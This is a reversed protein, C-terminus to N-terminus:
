RLITQRPHGIPQPHTVQTRVAAAPAPEVGTAVVAKAPREGAPHWGSAPLVKPPAVGAAALRSEPIAMGRPEGGRRKPGRLAVDAGAAFRPFGHGRIKQVAASEQSGGAAHARVPAAGRSDRVILNPEPRPRRGAAALMEPRTRTGPRSGPSQIHPFGRGVWALWANQLARVDAFGYHRKIAASWAEAQMGDALFDLFKRRGGHQILFESLTYGQAYLPMMDAPYEKMGFMRGFPIGRGSRLFQTLMRYHKARESPHEVSTAAGEDAWRPVARRFHCALIMHTIEHPLVSDLIREASGQIVMRWGYVEGRDFVFTTSGGAGLHASVRATVMCPRSWDPMTKGLWARALDRRHQEAANGIREALKANGTQIVFNPTRYSAGMSVTFVAALLAARLSRAEM